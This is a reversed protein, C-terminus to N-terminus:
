LRFYGGSVYDGKVGSGRRRSALFWKVSNNRGHGEIAVGPDSWTTEEEERSEEHPAGSLIRAEM